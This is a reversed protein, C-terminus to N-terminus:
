EEGSKWNNPKLSKLWKYDSEIEDLYHINIPRQLQNELEKLIRTFHKNDEESWSYKQDIIRLEKKEDDWEYGLERMKSFLIDCQEKTAPYVKVGNEISLFEGCDRGNTVRFTGASDVFCHSICVVQSTNKKIEKFLFYENGIALVDGDKADQITWLRANEDVYKKNYYSDHGNQGLLLYDLIGSQEPEIELIKFPNGGHFTIWDGVKFGPQVKDTSKQNIQKELWAIWVKSKKVLDVDHHPIFRNLYDLLEERIMEDESVKLEPFIYEFTYSIDKAGVSDTNEKLYKARELAEKYKKEYINM